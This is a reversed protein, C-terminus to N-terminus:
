QHPPRAGGPAVGERATGPGLSRGRSRLLGGAACDGPRLREDLGDRRHWSRVTIMDPGAEGAVYFGSGPLGACDAAPVMCRDGDAAGALAELPYREFLLRVAEFPDGASSRPRARPDRRRAAHDVAARKGAPSIMRSCDKM